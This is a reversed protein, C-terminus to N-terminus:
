GEESQGAGQEELIMVLSSAAVLADTAQLEALTRPEGDAGLDYETSWTDPVSYVSHRGAEALQRVRELPLQLAACVERVSLLCQTAEAGGEATVLSLLCTLPARRQGVSIFRRTCAGSPRYAPTFRMDKVFGSLVAAAAKAKEEWHPAAASRDAIRQNLGQLALAAKRQIVDAPVRRERRRAGKYKDGTSREMLAKRDLVSKRVMADKMRKARTRRGVQELAAARKPAAPQADRAGHKGASRQM